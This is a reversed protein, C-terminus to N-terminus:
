RWFSNGSSSHKLFGFIGNRGFPFFPLIPKAGGDYDISPFHRIGFKFFVPHTVKLYVRRRHQESLGLFRNATATSIERRPFDGLLRDGFLAYTTICQFVFRSQREGYRIRIWQMILAAGATLILGKQKASLNVSIKKSWFSKKASHTSRLTLVITFM